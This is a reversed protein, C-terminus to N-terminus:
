TVPDATRSRGSLATPACLAGNLADRMFAGVPRGTVVLLSAYSHVRCRRTRLYGETM